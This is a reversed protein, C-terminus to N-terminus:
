RLDYVFVNSANIFHRRGLNRGGIIWYKGRTSALMAQPGAHLFKEHENLMILKAIHSKEPVLMPHRHYADLYKANKLRGDVRIIDNEM